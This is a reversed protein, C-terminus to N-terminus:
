STESDGRYKHFWQTYKRPLRFLGLGDKALHCGRFIWSSRNRSVLEVLPTTSQIHDTSKTKWHYCVGIGEVGAGMTIIIAWLVQGVLQGEGDSANGGSGDSVNSGSGDSTNGGSVEGGWRGGGDTSFNDEM